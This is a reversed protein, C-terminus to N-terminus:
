RIVKMPTKNAIFNFGGNGLQGSFNNGWCFADGDPTVGCTHNDGASLDSYLPPPALVPVPASQGMNSGMGLKGWANGGMCSAQQGTTACIQHEGITLKDPVGFPAPNRVSHSGWCRVGINVNACTSSASTAVDHITVLGGFQQFFFQPTGTQPFGFPNPGRTQNSDNRGWCVVDTGSSGVACTHEGGAAIRKFKFPALVRVPSTHPVEVAPLPAGAEGFANTGWCWIESRSQSIACAHGFGAAVLSFKVPSGALVADVRHHTTGGRGWWWVDGNVDVAATLTMGSSVQTFRCPAGPPCVVPIPKTSCAASTHGCSTTTPAGLQGSTNSGWCLIIGDQTLGCTHVQGASVRVFPDDCIRLAKCHTGFKCAFVQPQLPCLEFVTKDPVVDVKPGDDEFKPILHILRGDTLQWTLDGPHIFARNGMPDFAHARVTIKEPNEKYPEVELVIRERTVAAILGDDGGIQELPLDVGKDLQEYNGISGKGTHTLMGEQDYVNIEYEAGGEKPLAIGGFITGDEGKFDYRVPEKMGKSMLRVELRGLNDGAVEVVMNREYPSQARAFEVALLLFVVALLVIGSAKIQRGM